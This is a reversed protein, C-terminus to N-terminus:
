EGGLTPSWYNPMFDFSDPVQSFNLRFLDLSYGFFEYSAKWIFEGAIKFVVFAHNGRERLTRCRFHPVLNSPVNCAQM